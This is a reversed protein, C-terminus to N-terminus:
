KIPRGYADRFCGFLICILDIIWGITFFGGTFLWLLGTGIKGAYFRHFGAAGLFLCLLFTVVWSKNSYGDGRPMNYINNNIVTRDRATWREGRYEPARRTEPKPDDWFVRKAEPEPRPGNDNYVTSNNLNDRSDKILLKVHEKCYNKGDIEVLCDACFLKGCYVCFGAAERQPHITCNM